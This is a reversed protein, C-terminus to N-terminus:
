DANEIVEKGKRAGDTVFFELMRHYARLSGKREWMRYVDEEKM